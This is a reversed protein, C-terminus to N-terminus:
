DGEKTSYKWKYGYAIKQKGQCCMCISSANGNINRAAENISYHEKVFVDDVAYQNVPKREKEIVKQIRNGYTLNYLHSCWELNNVKCNLPNEDKHNIEYCGVPIPMFAKAVLLHVFYHKKKGHKSLTIRAYGKNIECRMISEKVRKRGLTKIRGYNSVKYLHEYGVIDKWIENPLNDLTFWRESNFLIEILENM